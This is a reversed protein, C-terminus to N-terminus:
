LRVVKVQINSQLLTAVGEVEGLGAQTIIAQLVVLQEQQQQVVQELNIDHWSITYSLLPTATSSPPSSWNNSLASGINFESGLEYESEM